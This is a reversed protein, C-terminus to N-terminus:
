EKSVSNSNEKNSPMWLRVGIIVCLAVVFLAPFDVRYGARTLVSYITLLCATSVALRWFIKWCWYGVWGLM